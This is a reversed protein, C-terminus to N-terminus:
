ESPRLFFWFNILTDVTLRAYIALVAGLVGLLPILIVMTVFQTAPTAIALIALARANKSALFYHTLLSFPTFLLTGAFLQTIFVADTYAPFLFAFLWPAIGIYIVVPILLLLTYLCIKKLLAIKFNYSDKGVLRPFAVTSFHSLMGNIEGPLAVAFFYAALQAPGVFHYILLKDVHNAGIHLVNMASLKLGFNKIDAFDAPTQSTDQQAASKWLFLSVLTLSSFYSITVVILDGSLLISAATCLTVVLRQIIRYQTHQSFKQRGQLIFQFDGFSDFFPIWIALIAYLLSLETNDQYLYYISLAFVALAGITGATIKLRMIRSFDVYEGSAVARSVATGMGTLSTISALTAVTLAFKYTGYVAPELFNAFLWALVFSFVFILGQGAILWSSQGVLYVMDTKTYKESWRLLTHIKLKLGIM